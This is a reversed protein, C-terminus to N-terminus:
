SPRPHRPEPCVIDKSDPCYERIKDFLYWQREISLGSPIVVPPLETPSPKWSPDKLLKICREPGATTERVMVMGPKDKTFRFYHLKSIGKLATKVTHEEFFDSWNYTPVFVTGDLTGVLQPVNVFSSQSVSNAIDDLDAIKSRRFCQKMLGFCWDPSFKTHGVPLFLYTIEDHLGSKVRWNLYNIMHKNKNQGGCNDAHLCVCAEGLGHVEFFHHLMSIISNAGKGVNLAEDIM